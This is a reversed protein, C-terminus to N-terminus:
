NPVSPTFAAGSDKQVAGHKLAAVAAIFSCYYACGVSPVMTVNLVTGLRSVTGTTEM